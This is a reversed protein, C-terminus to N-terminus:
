AILRVPTAESSTMVKIGSTSPIGLNDGRGSNTGSDKGSSSPDDTTNRLGSLGHRYNNTVCSISDKGDKGGGKSWQLRSM